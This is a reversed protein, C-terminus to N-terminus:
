PSPIGKFTKDASNSAITLTVKGDAQIEEQIGVISKSGWHLHCKLRVNRTCVKDPTTTFPVDGTQVEAGHGPIMAECCTNPAGTPSAMVSAAACMLILIAGRIM